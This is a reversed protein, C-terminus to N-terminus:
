RIIKCTHRNGENDTTNLVYIGHPLQSLPLRDIAAGNGQGSAIAKGDLTFVEYRDVQQLDARLARVATTESTAAITLPRTMSDGDADTVTLTLHLLGRYDASPQVLLQGGDQITLTAEAEKCSYAYVPSSTYGVFLEPINITATEGAALVRHPEAMFNLYDELLTYGDGDPDGNNDAEAPNSGTLREWWDPMGDQDTDYDAARQEETYVEYGGVDEETDPLGALGSRSGKYKNTGTQTEHIQRQDHNDFVPQTCGVDSLVDKYAEYATQVTAYSPFFPEDVWPNWDVPMDNVLQWLGGDVDTTKGNGHKTGDFIKNGAKDVLVNYMYYYSETGKNSGRQNVDARLIWKRTTAPGMKYFNRHFNAEHAEGYAPHSNWNYVVNNFIDLRGMYYGNGDMGGDLRPNRGSNNALLNHHFSGIDGGFVAAFGHRSNEDYKDHNAMNLAESILTRQLTINGAERSSFGEDISWSISCHDMIAERASRFGMGDATPGSGVRNRIFRVIQDSGFGMAAGRFCIGRGPATQGAITAYGDGARLTTRLPIIGSVDFVITRKGTLTEMGYRFSGPQGDDSLNTVHYVVGGRGGNAYRGYGEAGPFALHRPRFSWVEGKTVIEGGQSPNPSAVEDVRWYYSDLNKLGTAQWSTETGEYTPTTAAELAAEDTAFYFRHRVVADSAPEWTILYTGDDADVHMDADAPNPRKAQASSQIADIMFGNLVPTKDTATKGGMDAPADDDSTLVTFVIEEDTSTVDFTTVLVTADAMAAQQMTREAAHGVVEGGLKLTVPWAVTTAPNAWSSHYTQITHRGPDLGKIVLDFSGCENPDLNVGDGTLRCNFEKSQVFVKNWGSRMNHESRLTFTVGDDMQLTMENFDKQVPQWQTFGPELVEEQNNRNFESIDVKYVTQAMTGITLVTAAATLLLKHLM